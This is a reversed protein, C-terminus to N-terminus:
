FTLAEHPAPLPLSPREVEHEPRLESPLLKAQDAGAPDRACDGDPRRREAHADDKRRATVVAQWGGVRGPFVHRQIPQQVRGVDDRQVHRERWLRPMQDVLTRQRPHLPGRIEDVCGPPRHDVFGSQRPRKLLVQDRARRQIDVLVLRGDMGIQQLQLVDQECRM